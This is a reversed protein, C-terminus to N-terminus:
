APDCSSIKAYPVRFRQLKDGEGIIEIVVTEELAEVIRQAIMETEGFKISWPGTVNGEDDLSISKFYAQDLAPGGAEATEGPRLEDEGSPALAAERERAAAKAAAQAEAEAALATAERARQKAGKVDLAFLIFFPYVIPIVLGILFHVLASHRRMGAISGAWCAFGFWVSLVFVIIIVVLMDPEVGAEQTKEIFHSAMSGITSFFAFIIDRLVVM